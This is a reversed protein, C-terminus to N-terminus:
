YDTDLNLRKRLEALKPNLEVMREFREKNTYYKKTQEELRVESEVHIGWNKLSERLFGLLDTKHNNFESEQVKNDFVMNLLFNEGLEPRCSSLTSRLSSRKENKLKEIYLNWQTKFEKENFPTRPRDSFDEIEDDEEKPGSDNLM